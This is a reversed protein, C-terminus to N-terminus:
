KHFGEVRAIADTLEDKLVDEEGSVFAKGIAVLAAKAAMLLRRHHAREVDYNFLRAVDAETTPKPDCAGPGILDLRSDTM